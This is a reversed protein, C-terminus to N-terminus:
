LLLAPLALESGMAIRRKRLSLLLNVRRSPSPTADIISEMEYQQLMPLRVSHQGSSERSLASAPFRVDCSDFIDPVVFIWHSPLLASSDPRRAPREKQV